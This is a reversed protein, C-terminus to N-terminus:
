ATVEVFRGQDDHVGGALLIDDLMKERDPFEAELWDRRARVGAEGLLLITSEIRRRNPDFFMRLSWAAEDEHDKMLAEHARISELDCARLLECLVLRVDRCIRLFAM